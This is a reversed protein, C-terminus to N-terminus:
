ETCAEAFDLETVLHGCDCDQIQFLWINHKSSILHLWIHPSNPCSNIVHSKKGGAHLQNQIACINNWESQKYQTDKADKNQEVYAILNHNQMWRIDM